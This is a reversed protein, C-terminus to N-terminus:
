QNVKRTLEKVTTELNNIRQQQDNYLKKQVANEKQQTEIQVQQEKVANILLFVYAQNNVERRHFIRDLLLVM